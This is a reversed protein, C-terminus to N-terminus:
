FPIDDEEYHCHCECKTGLCRKQCAPECEYDAANYGVTDSQKQVQVSEAQELRAIEAQVMSIYNNIRKLGDQSGKEWHHWTAPCKDNRIQFCSCGFATRKYVELERLQAPLAMEVSSANPVPVPFQSHKRVATTTSNLVVQDTGDVLVVALHEENKKIDGDLAGLYFKQAYMKM